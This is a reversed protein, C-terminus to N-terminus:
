VTQPKHARPDLREAVFYCLRLVHRPQLAEPEDRVVSEFPPIAKLFESQRYYALGINLRIGAVEPMLQEAKRLSALAKTWQKRRMYVVGLNAYAGAVQPNAALVLRFDREAEDLRNQNLADQAAQFLRAPDAAAAPSAAPSGDRTEPAAGPSATQAPLVTATGAVM